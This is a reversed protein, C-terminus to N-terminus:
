PHEGLTWTTLVEYSPTAGLRSRVLHVSGAVWTPGSYGTLEGAAAHGDQGRRLRAITLHPHFPLRDSGLDRALDGLARLDGQVGLWVVRDRFSGAGALRLELPVRSRVARTVSDRLAEVGEDPVQGSFALTLHWRAAPVWRLQPHRPRVPAVVADAHSVVAAPLELAVFLRM